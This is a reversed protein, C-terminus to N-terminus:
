LGEAKFRSQVFAPLAPRWAVLGSLGAAGLLVRGLRLLQDPLPVPAALHRLAVAAAVPKEAPADVLALRASTLQFSM